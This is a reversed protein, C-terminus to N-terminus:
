LTKEIRYILIDKELNSITPDKPFVLIKIANEGLALEVKEKVVEEKSFVAKEFVPSVFIVLSNKPVRVEIKTEKEKVISRDKPGIVEVGQVPVITPKIEKKPVETIQTNKFNPEQKPSSVRTLIFVALILGSISGLIIAIIQEKKM